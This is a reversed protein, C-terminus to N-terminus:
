NINLMCRSMEEGFERLREVCGRGGLTQLAHERSVKAFLCVNKSNDDYAIVHGQCKNDITQFGDITTNNEDDFTLDLGKGNWDCWM